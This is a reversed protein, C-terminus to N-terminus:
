TGICHMYVQCRKVIVGRYPKVIGHGKTRAYTSSVSVQEIHNIFHFTSTNPKMDCMKKPHCIVLIVLITLEGRFENKSETACKIAKIYNKSSSVKNSYIARYLSEWTTKNHKLPLNVSM